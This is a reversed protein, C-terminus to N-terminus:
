IVESLVAEVVWREQKTGFSNCTSITLRRGEKSLDVFAENEDVLTVTEVSYIYTKGDAELEIEDGVILKNLDNFTKYAQNQVVRFGTSHGFLFINGQEVSGSGPYHVAGQNLAADLTPIDNSTPAQIVSSVGIKDITIKEPRTYTDLGVETVDNDGEDYTEYQDYNNTPQTDNNAVQVLEKPVLGFVYLIVFTIFFVAVFQVIINAWEKATM